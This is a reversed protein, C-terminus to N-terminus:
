TLTLFVYYVENSFKICNVPVWGIEPKGIFCGLVIIRLCPFKLSQTGIARQCTIKKPVRLYIFHMPLIRPM